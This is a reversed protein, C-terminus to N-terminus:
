QKMRVPIQWDQTSKLVISAYLHTGASERRLMEEIYSHTEDLTKMLPWGIFRKVAEDSAYSHIEQADNTSLPKFCINEGELGHFNM